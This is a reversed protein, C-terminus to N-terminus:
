TELRLVEANFKKTIICQSDYNICMATTRNLRVFHMEAYNCDYANKGLEGLVERPTLRTSM